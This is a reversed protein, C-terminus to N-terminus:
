LRQKQLPLPPKDPPLRYESGRHARLLINEEQRHEGYGASPLHRRPRAQPTRRGPLRQGRNPSVEENEQLIREFGVDKPDPFLAFALGSKGLYRRLAM